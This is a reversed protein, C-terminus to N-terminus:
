HKNEEIWKNMEITLKDEYACDECVDPREKDALKFQNCEKCNCFGIM